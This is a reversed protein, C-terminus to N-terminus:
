HPNNMLKTIEDHNLKEYREISGIDEWFVNEPVYAMMQGKKAFLPYIDKSLDINSDIDFERLYEFVIPELLGIGTNVLLDLTPKEIFSVVQNNEDTEATGVRIKWGKSLFITAWKQHKRHYELMKTFNLNTIIDSYYILMTRKGIVEEANLLASGTGKVNPKDPVYSINLDLWSGDGFYGRIQEKKYNVLLVVDTIHHKKLHRLVYELIPRQDVGIPMMVKQLYYTLPRMRTGEGGCFIVGIVNDAM